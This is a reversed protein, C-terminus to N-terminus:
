LEIGLKTSVEQKVYAIAIDKMMDLTVGGVKASGSKTKGWITENKIAALYDYGQNTIRYVGKRKSINGTLM